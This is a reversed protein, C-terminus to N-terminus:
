QIQRWAGYPISTQFSYELHNYDLDKLIGNAQALMEVIQWQPSVPVIRRVPMLLGPTRIIAPAALTSLLGTLLGRRSIM